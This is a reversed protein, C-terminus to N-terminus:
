SRFPYYFERKQSIRLRKMLRHVIAEETEKWKEESAEIGVPLSGGAIFGHGGARGRDVFIDRLIEGANGKSTRALRLSVHLYGKRRGTCLCWQMSKYTVLYDAVQSVLDPNEVDWLHSIILRSRVMAQYIGRNLATFFSRTRVPNQIRSLALLNSHPLIKLYTEVIDANHTRYLNMTDSLIGYVLATAVPQPIEIKKLLMAQALIVSTAGVETDIIALRANPKKVSPHQDLVITAERDKPFPNNEFAPQTDVLAVHPYTRLASPRLRHIPMKLIRVMEKNETRGIIGDYVIKSQIGYAQKALYHLAYASALADPDPHDHTLILLPSINERHLSLFRLIRRSNRLIASSKM